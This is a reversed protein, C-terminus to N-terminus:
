DHPGVMIGTRWYSRAEAGKPHDRQLSRRGPGLADLTAETISDARRVLDATEAPTLPLTTWYQPDEGDEWDITETFVSVYRQACSPCALIMVHFHSEEILEAEHVLTRRAETAADATAPWCRECGFRETKTDDNM